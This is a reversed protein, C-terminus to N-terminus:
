HGSCWPDVNVNCLFLVENPFSMCVKAILDTREIKMQEIKDKNQSLLAELETMQATRNVLHCNVNAFM